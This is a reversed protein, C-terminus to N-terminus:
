EEGRHFAGPPYPDPAEHEPRLRVEHRDSRRLPHEPELRHEEPVLNPGTALEDPAEFPDLRRLLLEPHGLHQDLGEGGLPVGGRVRIGVALLEEAPDPLLRRDLGNPLLRV